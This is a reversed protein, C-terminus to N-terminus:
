LLYSLWHHQEVPRRRGSTRARGATRAAGVARHYRAHGLIYFNDEIDIVTNPDVPAFTLVNKPGTNTADLPFLAPPFTVHIGTQNAFFKLAPPPSRRGGGPLVKGNLEVTIGINGTPQVGSRSATEAIFLVGIVPGPFDVSGHGDRGDTQLTIPTRRGVICHIKTDAQCNPM